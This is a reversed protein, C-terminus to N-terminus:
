SLGVRDTENRSESKVVDIDAQIQKVASTLESYIANCSRRGAKTARVTEKALSHIKEHAVSLKAFSVLHGLL